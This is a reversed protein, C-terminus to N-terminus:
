SVHDNPKDIVHGMFGTLMKKQTGCRPFSSLYRSPGEGARAKFRLSPRLCKLSKVSYLLATIQARESQRSARGIIQFKSPFREEWSTRDNKSPAKTNCSYNYKTM